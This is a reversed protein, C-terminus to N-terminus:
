PQPNLTSPQPNLTSPQPNNLSQFNPADQMLCEQTLGELDPSCWVPLCEVRCVLCHPSSQPTLTSPQPTLPSPQLSLTSSQPNFASPQPNLISPQPSLTSPQHKNPPQFNPTGQMLCEQTLGELDLYRTQHKPNLLGPVEVQVLCEVSWVCCWGSDM